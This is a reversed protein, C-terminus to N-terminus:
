PEYSRSSCHQFRAVKLARRRARRCRRWRKVATEAAMPEDGRRPLGRSWAMVSQAGAALTMLEAVLPMWWSRWMMRM